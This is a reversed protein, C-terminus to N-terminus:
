KASLGALLEDWSKADLVKETLEEIRGVDAIAEVTALIAASPMGFRKHALRLLIRRAETAKGELLGTELGTELGRALGRAEGEELIAQYTTSEKMNRVGQLLQTAFERQFRLGMLIYTAAWLSNAESASVEKELRADMQRIIEPLQGKEVNALPLLPLTAVGGLLLDEPRQQWTRIVRYRFDLYPSGDPLRRQLAGSLNGSDAEPRLLVAASLVPLRHRYELLVNYRALRLPLDADYSSQLELHVLWPTADEVRLIKDAEATVTSLDSNILQVPSDTKVGIYALWARPDLELLHRTTADFNKSV